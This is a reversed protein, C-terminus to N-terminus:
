LPRGIHIHLAHLVRKIVHRSGNRGCFGGLGFLKNVEVEEVFNFLAAQEFLKVFLLYRRRSIWVQRPPWDVETMETSLLFRESKLNSSFLAVSSIVLIHTQELGPVSVRIIPRRAAHQVGVNIKLEAVLVGGCNREARAEVQGM